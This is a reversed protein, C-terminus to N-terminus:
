HLSLDACVCVCVSVLPRCIFPVQIGSSHGPKRHPGIVKVLTVRPTSSNKNAM